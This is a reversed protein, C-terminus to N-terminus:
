AGGSWRRTLSAGGAVTLPVNHGLGPLPVSASLGLDLRTLPTLSWGLGASASLDARGAGVVLGNVAGPRTTLWAFSATTVLTPRLRVVGGLSLEAGLGPASEADTAYPILGTGAARVGLVDGAYGLSLGARAMGYGLGTAAGNAVASLPADVGLRLAPSLRRDASWPEVIAWARADGPGVAGVEGGLRVVLPLEAGLQVHRGFRRAGRVAVRLDLGEAGDLRLDGGLSRAGYFSAGSLGAGVAAVEGGLLWLPDGNAGAVCCSGALAAGGLTLAALIM